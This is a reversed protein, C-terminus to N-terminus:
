RVIESKLITQDDSEFRKLFFLSIDRMAHALEQQDIPRTSVWM